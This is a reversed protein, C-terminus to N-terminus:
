YRNEEAYTNGGMKNMYELFKDFETDYKNTNITNDPYFQIGIVM